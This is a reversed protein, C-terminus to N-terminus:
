SGGFVGALFDKSLRPKSVTTTDSVPQKQPFKRIVKPAQQSVPPDARTEEEEQLKQKKKLREEISSLARAQDVKSLYFDRERKAASIELALKQERVANDQATEETLDDWKFKSLYKINWLDYYFSSRKRGGIQEGNLMNAVRKAIRKDSFEVWGESFGQEQFRGARKRRVQGASKEPVLYIRQIGGFQSLLQRLKFPDMHPPVRSLYCIGRNKAAAAEKLLRKKSKIKRMEIIEEDHKENEEEIARAGIVEKGEEGEDAEEIRDEKGEGWEDDVGLVVEESQNEGIGNVGNDEKNEVKEKLLHRKKEKSKGKEGKRRKPRETGEEQTNNKHLQDEEEIESGEKVLIKQKKIKKGKDKKESPKAHWENFQNEEEAM